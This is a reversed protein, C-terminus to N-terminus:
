QGGLRLEGTREYHDFIRFYHEVMPRLHEREYRAVYNIKWLLRGVQFAEMEGEPWDLLEEYGQRFADFLQVYREDGVDELLDLMAMAIDHIRFGIVTDEFDFPYLTGKHLKVNDHWLDCHIVQLDNHDLVAYASEVREHLRHLQSLVEENYAELQDEHFIVDPEGRSLFHTFRRSSFGEPLTWDRGHVHLRAFLAGLRRLNQPTLYNGLVRGPQWSMLTAHWTEASGPMQMPLVASGDAARVVRPVPISTDRGIADLWLAESKLGSETRWGPSALRLILRQGSSTDVRYLHNTQLSHLSVREIPIDYRDLTSVALSHLRTM